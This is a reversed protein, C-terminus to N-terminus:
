YVCAFSFFRLGGAIITFQQASLDSRPGVFFFFLRDTHITAQPAQLLTALSRPPGGAGTLFATRGALYFDASALTVTDPWALRYPTVKIPLCLGHAYFLINRM